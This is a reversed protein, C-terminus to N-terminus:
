GYYVLARIPVPQLGQDEIGDGGRDRLAHVVEAQIFEDFPVAPLRTRAERLSGHGGPAYCQFGAPEPGNGDVNADGRHPLQRDFGGIVPKQRRFQRVADKAAYAEVIVGDGPKVTNPMWGQHMMSNPSAMELYWISNNGRANKVKLQLSAHPNTWVFKVVTGRLILLRSADYEAAFSHHACLRALSIAAITAVVAIRKIM